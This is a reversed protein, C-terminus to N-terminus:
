SILALLSQSPKIPGLLRLVIQLLNFSNSLLNFSIIHEPDAIDQVNTCSLWLNYM